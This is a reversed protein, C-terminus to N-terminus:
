YQTYKTVFKFNLYDFMPLSIGDVWFARMLTPGLGRFFFRLGEAKYSTMVVRSMRTEESTQIITKIIDFPYTILWSLAGAIGGCWFM